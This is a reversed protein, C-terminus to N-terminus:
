KRSEEESLDQKTTNTITKKDEEGHVEPLDIELYFMNISDINQLLSAALM